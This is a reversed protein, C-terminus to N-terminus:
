FEANARRNGFWLYLVPLVVLTLFTSTLLGGVVVTALPRQIESGPGTAFLMPILSFIAISATMLVPRLRNHSGRVVADQVSAGEQRLQAIHSVLVVGNLVAVGFLVIFGVSAPVSLYLGSLYLAFVGGILAFPLNTIM